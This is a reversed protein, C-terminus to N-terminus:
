DINWARIRLDIYSFQDAADILRANIRLRDGGTIEICCGLPQHTIGAAPRWDSACIGLTFYYDMGTNEPQVDVPPCQQTRYNDVSYHEVYVMRDNVVASTTFSFAASMIEHVTNAPAMYLVPEGAAPNPVRVTFLNFRETKFKNPSTNLPM